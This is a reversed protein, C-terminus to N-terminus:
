TLTLKLLRLFFSAFLIWFNLHSSATLRGKGFVNKVCNQGSISYSSSSKQDGLPCLEELMIPIM